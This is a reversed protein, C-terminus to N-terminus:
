GNTLTTLAVRQAGELRHVGILVPDEPALTVGVESHDRLRTKARTRECRLCPGFEEVAASPMGLMHQRRTTPHRARDKLRAARQIESATDPPHRQWQGPMDLM